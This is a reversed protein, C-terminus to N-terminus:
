AGVTLRFLSNLGGSRHELYIPIAAQAIGENYGKLVGVIKRFLGAIALLQFINREVVSMRKMYPDTIQSLKDTTTANSNRILVGQRLFM